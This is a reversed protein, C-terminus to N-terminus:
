PTASIEIRAVGDAQVVAANARISTIYYTYAKNEYRENKVTLRRKWALVVV